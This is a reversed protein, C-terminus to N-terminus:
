REREVRSESPTSGPPSQQPSSSSPDRREKPPTSGGGNRSTVLERPKASPPIDDDLPLTRKPGDLAVGLVLNEEVSQLRPVPAASSPSPQAQPQAAATQAKEELSKSAGSQGSDSKQPVGSLVQPQERWPDDDQQPKENVSEESPKSSPSEKPIENTVVVNLSPSNNEAKSSPKTTQEKEAHVMDVVHAVSEVPGEPIDVPPKEFAAKLLTIDNSNLGMSDLGELQPKASTAAAPDAAGSKSGAEAMVQSKEKPKTTKSKPDSADESLHAGKTHSSSAPVGSEKGIEKVANEKAVDKATIEKGLDPTVKILDGEDADSVAVSSAEIMYMPRKREPTSDDRFPAQRTESEDFIRQVSRIPTALRANHHSIVRLMDLLIIEQFAYPNSHTCMFVLSPEGIASSQNVVLLPSVFPNFSFSCTFSLVCQESLM